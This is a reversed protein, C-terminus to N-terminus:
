LYGQIDWLKLVPPSTLMQVNPHLVAANFCCIANFKSNTALSWSKETTKAEQLHNLILAGPTSIRCIHCSSQFISLCVGSKIIYIYYRTIIHYLLSGLKKFFWFCIRLGDPKSVWKNILVEEDNFSSFICGNFYM